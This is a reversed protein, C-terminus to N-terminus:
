LLGRSRLDQMLSSSEEVNHRYPTSRCADNKGLPTGRYARAPDSTSEIAPPPRKIMPPKESFVKVGTFVLCTNKAGRYKSTIDRIVGGIKVADHEEIRGGRPFSDDRFGTQQVVDGVLAEKSEDICARFLKNLTDVKVGPGVAQEVERLGRYVREMREKWEQTLPEVKTMDSFRGLDDQFGGRYQRFGDGESVRFESKMSSSGRFSNSTVSKPVHLADFTRRYLSELSKKEAESKARVIENLPASEGSGRFAPLLSKDTRKDLLVTTGEKRANDIAHEVKTRESADYLIREVVNGGRFRLVGYQRPNSNHCVCAFTPDHGMKTGRVALIANDVLM